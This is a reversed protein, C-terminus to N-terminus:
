DLSNFLPSYTAYMEVKAPKSSTTLSLKAASSGGGPVFDLFTFGGGVIAGSADYAVAYVQVDKLDSAGANSVVGTANQSFSGSQVTVNAVSLPNKDTSARASGSRLQVQIKAAKQTADNAFIDGAIGVKEGPFIIDLSGSDTDIVAGNADYAAVQYESNEIAADSNPNIVIFAYAIDTDQQAFGTSALAVPQSQGAARTPTRSPPVRTAAPASAVRTPGASAPAATPAADAITPAPSPTEQAAALQQQLAAITAQLEAIRPDPTTAAPPLTTTAPKKSSSACAALGLLACAALLPLLWRQPRRRTGRCPM